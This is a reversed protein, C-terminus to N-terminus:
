FDKQTDMVKELGARTDVPTEMGPEWIHPTIYILLRKNAQVEKKQGFLSGLGPIERLGPIGADSKASVETMLGGIVLTHGAGIRITTTADSRVRTLSTNGLSATFQSASISLDLRVQEDPLLFPTMNLVIGSTVPELTIEDSLPTFMTVFRDEAVEIKAPKGSITAIYPRFIVRAYNHELLMNIAAKFTRSNAAGALKTFTITEGVLNDWDISVDSVSGSAGDSIRTGIQLLQEASFELILAEMLIHGGDTDLSQLIDLANNVEASSGKILIANESHIPAFSLKRSDSSSGNSEEYSTTALLADLMPELARTDAYRLVKKKFVFDLGPQPELRVEPLRSITVVQGSITAQLQAPSLLMDLAEQMPLKNFKASVHASVSKVGILAYNIGMRQLVYGLDVRQVDVSVLQQALPAAPNEIRALHIGKEKQAIHHQKLDKSQQEYQDLVAYIEEDTIRNSTSCSVTLAACLLGLYIYKNTM